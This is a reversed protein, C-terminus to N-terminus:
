YCNLVSNSPIYSFSTFGIDFWYQGCSRAVIPFGIENDIMIIISVHACTYIRPLIIIREWSYILIKRHLWGKWMVGSLFIRSYILNLSNLKCIGIIYFFIRAERRCLSMFIRSCPYGPLICKLLLGIFLSLSFVLPCTRRRCWERADDGLGRASRWQPVRM